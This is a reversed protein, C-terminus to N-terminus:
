NHLFSAVGRRSGNSLVSCIRTHERKQFVQSQFLYSSVWCECLVMATVVSGESCATPHLIQCVRGVKLVLVLSRVASNLSGRGSGRVTDRSGGSQLCVAKLDAGWQVESMTSFRLHRERWVPAQPTGEGGAELRESERDFREM